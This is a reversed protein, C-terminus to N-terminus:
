LEVEMVVKEVMVHKPHLEVMGVMGVVEAPEVPEELGVLDMWIDAIVALNIGHRVVEVAVVVVVAVVPKAVVMVAVVEAVVGVVAEALVM